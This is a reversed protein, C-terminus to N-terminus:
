YFCIIAELIKNVNVDMLIIILHLINRGQTRIVNFHSSTQDLHSLTGNMQYEVLIQSCLLAMVYLTHKDRDKFKQDHM